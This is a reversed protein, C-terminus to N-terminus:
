AARRPGAVPEVLISEALQASIGLRANCVQCIMTSEQTLLRIQQDECFGLERLRRAMDPSALLQKIRCRTGPAVRTLPCVFSDLREDLGEGEGGTLVDNM